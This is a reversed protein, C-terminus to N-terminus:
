YDNFAAPIFAWYPSVRRGFIDWDGWTPDTESWVVLCRGKQSDAVAPNTLQSDDVHRVRLRSGM